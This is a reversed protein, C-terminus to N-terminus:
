NNISDQKSQISAQKKSLETIVDQYIIELEAPHGTYYEISRDFTKKDIKHKKFTTNYYFNIKETQITRVAILGELLQIDVMVSTMKDTDLIGKPLQAESNQQCSFLLVSICLYLLIYKKTSQIM